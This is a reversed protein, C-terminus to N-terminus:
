TVGSGCAKNLTRRGAADPLGAARSAQRAPAQGLGAPLVCGMITEDVKDAALGAHELAGRIAAAGLTPTPVGNFQGLFSGIATRKAGAIIIDSMPHEVPHPIRLIRKIIMGINSHPLRQERRAAQP